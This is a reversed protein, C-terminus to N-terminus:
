LGPINRRIIYGNEILRKLPTSFTTTPRTHLIFSKGTQESFLHFDKLQRTLSLHKVNKVEHLSFNNLKDPIRYQATETLSPIRAKFGTTGVAQEGQIGLQRAELLPDDVAQLNLNGSFKGDPATNITPGKSDPTPANSKPLNSSVEPKSPKTTEIGNPKLTSVNSVSPNPARGNWINHGKPTTVGGVVGGIVAGGIAGSIAGKQLGEWFDGSGGPLLSMFGGSIAGSALGGVAGSIAGGIVGGVTLVSAVGATVAAGVGGSVGGIIAGGVVGLWTSGSSWNWKIPNWNGGNAQVGGFYAGAVAGIVIATIFIFEGSADNFMLPNNWVYGYRNFSKTSYPEQIFNDPSLFRGLQADYMRGNMHILNVTFFHEHGTYGRSLLSNHTFSNINGIGWFKDITGWAGFQRKEVVQGSDNSIALISGLYDRHLYHFENITSNVTKKIHVIPATYADGMVYTMFKYSNDQSDHVIEVPAISSYQKHYRRELKDEDLGGYWANSRNMMPGYEFSVRGNGAEHIEIPKKFANYTIQQPSHQEYYQEGENNLNIERLRYRSSTQYKYTGVDSNGTIRGLPDYTQTKSVAGTITTLRDQSDHGFNEQWNFSHNKRNNLIGRAANFVYTTHMAVVNTDDHVDLVKKVLGYADYERNKTIGNGLEITLAQARETEEVLKWLSKGSVADLVEKKIGAADYINRTTISSEAGGASSIVKETNARGYADYTYSKEFRASGINEIVKSPRQQADYTYNYSYSKNFFNDQASISNILRTSTNYSYNLDLSTNEGEITKKTVKGFGNYEYSTAGRPTTEKLLEGMINYSYTYTGASPDNMRIKRGWGDIDVTVKHGGYNASKLVGNAYYTYAITGGLDTVEAINGVADKTTTVTRTGDNVTVSLGNYTTNITKGTALGNSILRGYKDYAINNWLSPATFYPESERITRGLVDHETNKSVWKNNLSLVSKKVEWGFVNMFRKEDKDQPYDTLVSMFINGSEKIYTTYTNKNLYNTQQILRNWGDYIYTMKQNYPNTESLVNGKSTDYSFTNELGEVDVSKTMFRGSSDYEYTEGRSNIGLGSLTKSIVNGFNDYVLTETLWDTNHGKKKMTTPLNNTYDYDEQTSFTNGYLTSSDVKKDIRGIYYNQDYASSNHLYSYTETNSGGSFITKITLPNNYQDYTYTETSTLDLLDDSTIIKTPVISFVKDNSISSTYTYQSRNIYNSSSTSYSSLSTWEEELAGRLQPNHKAINWINSVGSGDWNTSKFTRFGLFGLGQAHMTANEYMFQKRREVGSGSEEIETVVKFSPAVEINIYPYQDPYTNNYPGYGDNRELTSYEIKQTLGSNTISNLQIDTQHDKTFKYAFLSNVGLYGYAPSGNSQNIDLFIPIGFKHNGQNRFTRNSTSTFSVTNDNEGFTNTYQIIRDFSRDYAGFPTVVKHKLIDTKGDRNFDQNIYHFEIFPDAIGEEVRGPERISTNKEYKVGIDKNYSYFSVGNATFFRWVSSNEATPTAFDIKSDGNFDGLLKPTKTDIKNDSYDVLKVLNNNKDLSYVQLRKNGFHFLDSKGDGNFDGVSLEGADKISHKLTGALKSFNSTASPNLNIFHVKPDRRTIPYCEVYPRDDYPDWEEICEEGNQYPKQIALVDMIGDGNFDGSIYARPIQKRKSIDIAGNFTNGSKTHFGPKLTVAHSASYTVNSSNYIRNTANIYDDKYTRSLGNIDASISRVRPEEDRIEIFTPAQWTKDYGGFGSPIVARVRFKVQSTSTNSSKSENILVFSNGSLVKNQHNVFSGTIIEDFDVNYTAGITTGQGYNSSDFFRDYVTIKDKKKRDYTIFDMKGDGNFDGTALNHDKASIGPFIDYPEDFLTLLGNYTTNYNFTIPAFSKGESNFEQIRYLRQYGLNTTTHTLKYERFIKSSGYVRINDLVKTRKFTQGGIYSLEPRSRNKYSFSIINPSTTGTRSGYAIDKIRILSNSYSYTYKIFNGQADELRNIAWELQGRSNDGNGYWARSGNPYYVIFYSPGYQAGFPSTGYGKIKVNSFNETQYESNAVGYSGSKLLLRQGDLAFRDKNDFDVPDIEGDHYKTSAVRTITSLGSINWGWGAIGNASQSNFTLEVNPVVDKIGPPIAIPIRYTAAGTPTVTLDGPTAGAETGNLSSSKSTVSESSSIIAKTIPKSAKLITYDGDVPDYQVGTQQANSTMLVALCFIISFYKHLQM